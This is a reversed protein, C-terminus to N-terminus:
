TRIYRRKMFQVVVILVLVPSFWGCDSSVQPFEPLTMTCADVTQPKNVWRVIDLDEKSGQETAAMAIFSDDPENAAQQWLLAPSRCHFSISWCLILSQGCLVVLQVSIVVGRHVHQMFQIAFYPM